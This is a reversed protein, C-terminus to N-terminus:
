EAIQRLGTVEIESLLRPRGTHYGQAFDVGIERLRELIAENEVYEAIIQKGMFHGIETISRVIACDEPNKDIDKVFVGDIKLFDVPLRRLYGYSSMGSGFDDLAFHHGLRRIEEIFDAAEGLSEVGTTETVEFGIQEAPIESRRLEELLFQRFSTDNLSCGSLNIALSGTQAVLDPHERLWSMVERVVLRDIVPMKHFHEAAVVFEQPSVFRGEDDQIALLIESHHPRGADACGHGIAIIPQFRLTLPAQGNLIENVRELWGLGQRRRDKGDAGPYVVSSRGEDRAKKCLDRGLGTM